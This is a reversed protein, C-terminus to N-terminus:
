REEWEMTHNQQCGANRLQAWSLINDRSIDDYECDDDCCVSRHEVPLIQDPDERVTQWDPRCTAYAYSRVNCKRELMHIHGACRTTASVDTRGNGERPTTQQSLSSTANDEQQQMRAVAEIQARDDEGLNRAGNGKPVPSAPRGAYRADNARATSVVARGDNSHIDNESIRDDRVDATSVKASVANGVNAFRELERIQANADNARVEACQM